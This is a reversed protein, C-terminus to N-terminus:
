KLKSPPHTPFILRGRQMWSRCKVWLARPLFLILWASLIGSGLLSAFIGLRLPTPDYRFVIKSAGAPVNIRRFVGEAGEASEISHEYPTPINDVFATWGAADTDRLTVTGPVGFQPVGIQIEEPSIEKIPLALEDPLLSSQWSARHTPLPITQSRLQALYPAYHALSIPEYGGAERIGGLMNLNPVGSTLLVLTSEPTRVPAYSNKPTMVEWWARTDYDRVSANKENLFLRAQHYLAADQVPNLRASFYLVDLTTLALFLPAIKKWTPFQKILAHLGWGALNAMAFTAIYLWRAPDHFMKTGPLVYYAAAYLGAHRGFSLWFTILAVVGWFAIDAHRKKRLFFPVSLSLVLPVLGAYCCPEWFNGQGKYGEIDAPHGQWNPWALNGVLSQLPLFFRNAEGLSMQPRVSDRALAISPLLQGMALVVGLVVGGILEVAIPRRETKPLHLLRYIGWILTIYFAMYFMQPHAALLFLGICLSLLWAFIKVRQLVGELCWLAWPLFSAAQTMNPFQMKSVLFGGFGWSVSALLAPIRLMGRSRLFLYTGLAGFFCHFAGIVGVLRESSISYLLFTSPYFPWAQPNGAAPTGSLILPNWLTLRGQLLNQRVWDLQPVFYFAIDGYVLAKGLFLLPFFLLMACLLLFFVPYLRRM